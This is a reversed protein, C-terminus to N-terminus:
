TGHISRFTIHHNFRQRFKTFNWSIKSMELGLFLKEEERCTTSRGSSANSTDWSSGFLLLNRSIQGWMWVKQFIIDHVIHIHFRHFSPGNSFSPLKVVFSISTLSSRSTCIQVSKSFIKKLSFSSFWRQWFPFETNMSVFTGHQSFHGGM